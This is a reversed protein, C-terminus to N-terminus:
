QPGDCASEIVPTDRRSAAALPKRRGDTVHEGPDSLFHFPQGCTHRCSVVLFAHALDLSAIGLRGVYDCWKIGTM